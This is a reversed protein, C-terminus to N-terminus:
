IHLKNAHGQFTKQRLLKQFGAENMGLWSLWLDRDAVRDEDMLFRRAQVKEKKNKLDSIALTLVASALLKFANIQQDM